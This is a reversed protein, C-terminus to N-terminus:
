GGGRQYSRDFDSMFEKREDVTFNRFSFEVEIRSIRIMGIARDPLSSLVLVLERSNDPDTIIVRNGQVTHHYDAVATPLIRFFEAKSYGMDRKFSDGHDIGAVM